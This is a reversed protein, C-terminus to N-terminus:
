TNSGLDTQDHHFWPKLFQVPPLLVSFSCGVRKSSTWSQAQGCLRQNGPGQPLLERRQHLDWWRPAKRSHQFQLTVSVSCWPCKQKNSSNESLNQSKKKRGMSNRHFVSWDTDSRSRKNNMLWRVFDQAKRDELYKSYDNSFTGESHRKMNSLERSDGQLTDDAAPSGSCFHSNTKRRGRGWLVSDSFASENQITELLIKMVTQLTNCRCRQLLNWFQRSSSILSKLFSCFRTERACRTVNPQSPGM